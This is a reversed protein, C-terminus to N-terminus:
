GKRSLALHLARGPRFSAGSWCGAEEEVRGDEACGRRDGDELHGEVAWGVVRRSYLDLIFALYLFGEATAIHTIDAVWVKDCRTAVFDRKLLDEAAPRKGRRAQGESTTAM